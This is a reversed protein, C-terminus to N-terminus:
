QIYKLPIRVIFTTGEGEKSHIGISGHHKDVIEKTIALGLGSGGTERTRAKDVRFFREFIREQHEEAIGIGTDAIKVYFYQHDANLSATVKGDTNNYKIANEVLNRVVSAFKIEDVDAIVPRFSEYILEINKSEAIPKLRKLVSELIENINVSSISIEQESKEIKVMDLLDTIINNERDIEESIDQLFEQYLEEPLGSQGLLSDALIKMSTIPTKLEHSVDSVFEQRSKEQRNIKDMLQKFENTINSVESYETKREIEEEGKSIREISDEIREIPKGFMHSCVWGIILALLIALWQFVVAHKELVERYETIDTISYNVYLVGLISTNMNGDADRVTTTLPVIFEVQQKEAYEEYIHEGKLGKNINESINIKGIQNVDTDKVIVNQSNVVQIRCNNEKALQSIQADVAESEAGETYGTSIISNKLMINNAKFRTIKNEKYNESAANLIFISSVLSPVMIAVAVVVFVRLKLSNILNGIKSLLQRKM